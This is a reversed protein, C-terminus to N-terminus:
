YIKLQVSFQIVNSATVATPIYVTLLGDDSLRGTSLVPETMSGTYGNATLVVPFLRDGIPPGAANVAGFDYPATGVTMSTGPTFYESPPDLVVIGDIQLLYRGSFRYKLPLHTDHDFDSGLSVNTWPAADVDTNEVWTPTGSVLARVYYSGDQNLVVAGVASVLTTPAGSTRLVVGGIHHRHDSIGATLLTATNARFVQALELDWLGDPDVELDPPGAGITGASVIATVEQAVPDYRLVIRDTRTDGELPGTPPSAVADLDLELDATLTYHVGRVVAEGALVTITSTGDATVKLSHGTYDNVVGDGLAGGFLARWREQYMPPIADPDDAATGWPLSSEAM